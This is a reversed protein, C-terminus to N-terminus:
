RLLRCEKLHTLIYSFKNYTSQTWNNRKGMTAVFDNWTKELEFMQKKSKTKGTLNNFETRLEGATPVHDSFHEYRVFLSDINNALSAIVQNYEKARKRTAPTEGPLVTGNHSDWFEKEIKLGTLFGVRNGSYVVRMRIPFLNNKDKHADLDFVVNRKIKIM